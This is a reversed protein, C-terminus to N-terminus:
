EFKFVNIKEVTQSLSYKINKLSECSEILSHISKCWYCNRFNLWIVVTRNFAWWVDFSFRYNCTVHFDVIRFFNALITNAEHYLRFSSSSILFFINTIIDFAQQQHPQPWVLYSFNSVLQPLVTTSRNLSGSIANYLRAWLVVSAPISFLDIM